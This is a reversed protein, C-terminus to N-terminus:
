TLASVSVTKSLIRGFQKSPMPNACHSASNLTPSHTKAPIVVSIADIRRAADRKHSKRRYEDSTGMGRHARRYPRRLCDDLMM